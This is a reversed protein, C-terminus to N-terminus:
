RNTGDANRLDPRVFTNDPIETTYDTADLEQEGQLVRLLAGEPSVCLTGSTALEPRDRDPRLQTM